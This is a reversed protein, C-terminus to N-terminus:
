RALADAVAAGVAALAADRGAGNAPSETLFAAVLVPQGGSPPWLLGVDNSTGHDATGTKEGVTWGAPLGARLRAGGTKGARLWGQLTTRAPLSLADGLALARIDRLMAEPTTTDRPDGPQAENVTPETRDLRSQQDGLSRLFATLGPPGGLIGLLLNGATNDSLTVSAECLAGLTMGDGNAHEQTVPSYTVVDARTYRLRRDLGDTGADTRALVAGAALLKIDGGADLTWGAGFSGPDTVRSNYHRGVALSMGTGAINVDAAFYLGDGSAAAVRLRDKTTIAFNTFQSFGQAGPGGPFSDGVNPDCYPSFWGQADVVRPRIRRDAISSNERCPRAPARTYRM